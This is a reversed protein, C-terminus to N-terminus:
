RPSMRREDALAWDEDALPHARRYPPIHFVLLALVRMDTFPEGDLLDTLTGM